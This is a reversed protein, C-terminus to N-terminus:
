EFFSKSPKPYFRNEIGLEISRVKFEDDNYPGYSKDFPDIDMLYIWGSKNEIIGKVLLSHRPSDIGIQEVDLIKQVGWSRTITLVYKGSDSKLLVSNKTLAVEKSINNQSCSSVILMFLLLCFNCFRTKYM